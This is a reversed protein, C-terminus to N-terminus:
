RPIGAVTQQPETFPLVATVKPWRGTPKDENQITLLVRSGTPDAIKDGAKPPQGLLATLIAFTKSQPGSNMSSLSSLPQLQDNVQVLWHWKRMQGYQSPVGSEVKELTAQYTGDPIDIGCAKWAARAVKWERLATAAIGLNWAAAEDAPDLAHALQCWKLSQEWRSFNKYHLGLNYAPVSWDPDIDAARSYLAIAGATDGAAALDNGETNFRDARERKSQKSFPNTFM